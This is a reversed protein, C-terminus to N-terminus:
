RSPSMLVLGGIGCMLNPIDIRHNRGCRCAIDVRGRLANIQGIYRGCGANTCTWRGSTTVPEGPQLTILHSTLGRCHHCKRELRYCPGLYPRNTEDKRGIWPTYSVGQIDFMRRKCEKCRVTVERDHDQEACLKMQISVTRNTDMLKHMGRVMKVIEEGTLM